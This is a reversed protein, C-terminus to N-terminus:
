ASRLTPKLLHAGTCTFTSYLKPSFYLPKQQPVSQAPPSIGSTGASQAAVLTKISSQQEQQQPM